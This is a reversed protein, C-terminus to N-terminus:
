FQLVKNYGVLHISVVKSSVPNKLTTLDYCIEKTFYAQCMQTYDDIMKVEFAPIPGPGANPLEKAILQFRKTTNDCGSFGINLILKSNDIKANLIILSAGDIKDYSTPFTVASCDTKPKIVNIFDITVRTFYFYAMKCYIEFGGINGTYKHYKLEVRDGENLEIAVLPLFSQDCPQLLQGDDTKIWLSKGYISLGCNQFVVTGKVLTNNGGGNNGGGDEYGWWGKKCSTFGLSLIMALILVPKMMLMTKKM